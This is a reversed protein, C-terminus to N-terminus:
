GMWEVKCWTRTQCAPCQIHRSYPRGPIWLSLALIRVGLELVPIRTRVDCRSCTVVATGREHHGASFVAEHGHIDHRHVLPDDKLSDEIEIPPTEFLARKGERDERDTV